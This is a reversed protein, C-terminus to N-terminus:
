PILFQGMVSSCTLTIKTVCYTVMAVSPGALFGKNKLKLRKYKFFLVTFKKLAEKFKQFNLTARFGMYLLKKFKAM